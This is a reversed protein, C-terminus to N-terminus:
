DDFGGREEGYARNHFTSTEYQYLVNFIGTGTRRGKLLLIQAEAMRGSRKLQEETEIDYYAPRYLGIMYGVTEDIARSEKFDGKMPRKDHRKNIETTNVQSLAFFNVGLELAVNSLRIMIGTLENATNASSGYGPMRQIYDVYFSGGKQTNQISWRRLIAEINSVSLAHADQIFIPLTALHERAHILAQKKERPLAARSADSIFDTLSINALKSVLQEELQEKSQEYTFLASPFGMEAQSLIMDLAFSTKGMSTAAGIACSFGREFGGGLHRDLDAFGSPVLVTGNGGNLFEQHRAEARTGLDRVHVLDEGKQSYTLAFLSQSVRTNREEATIARDRCSRKLDELTKDIHRAIADELIQGAIAALNTAAYGSNYTAIIWDRGGYRRYRDPDTGVLYSALLKVDLAQGSRYLFTMGEFMWRCSPEVFCHEPPETFSEPRSASELIGLVEVFQDPYTLLAGLLSRELEPDGIMNSPIEAIALSPDPQGSRATPLQM